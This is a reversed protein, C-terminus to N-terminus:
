KAKVYRAYAGPAGKKQLQQATAEAKAFAPFQGSFVVWYGPQLSSFDDSRLVGVSVGQGALRQATAEASAKTTASQLVATYASQGSPWSGVTGPAPTAPSSPATSAGGPTTPTTATGPTTPTAGNEGEAGGPTTPTSTSPTTPTTPTSATPGTSTTPTGSTAAPAAATTPPNAQNLSAVTKSDDSLQAFAVAVAIGALLVLTSIVIVPTRWGPPGIISQAVPAGCELCWDQDTRVEAGCYPCPKTATEVQTAEPTETTTSM